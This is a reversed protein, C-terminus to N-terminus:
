LRLSKSVVIVRYRLPSNESHNIGKHSPNFNLPMRICNLFACYNPNTVVDGSINVALQARCVLKWYWNLCRLRSKKKPLTYSSDCWIEGRDREIPNTGVIMPAQRHLSLELLLRCAIHTKENMCKCLCIQLLM